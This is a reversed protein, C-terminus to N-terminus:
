TEDTLAFRQSLGVLVATVAVVFGVTINSLPVAEPTAGTADGAEIQKPELETKDALGARTAILEGAELKPIGSLEVTPTVCDM